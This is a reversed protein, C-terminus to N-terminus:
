AGAQLRGAEEECLARTPLHWANAAVLDAALRAAVEHVAVPGPRAVGTTGRAARFTACRLLVNVKLAGVPPVDLLMDDAAGGEHLVQHSITSLAGLYVSGPTNDVRLPAGDPAGQPWLLLGRSGALTLVLILLSAGGDHHRPDTRQGAPPAKHFQVEGQTLLWDAVPTEKLHVGNAGLRDAPLKALATRLAKQFHKFTEAHQRLFARVFARVEASAWPGPQGHRGWSEKPTGQPGAAHLRPRYRHGPPIGPRLRPGRGVGV